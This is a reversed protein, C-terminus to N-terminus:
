SNDGVTPGTNFRETLLLNYKRDLDTIKQIAATLAAELHEIRDTLEDRTQEATSVAAKANLRTVKESAKAEERLIQADGFDTKM